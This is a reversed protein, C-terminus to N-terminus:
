CQLPTLFELNYRAGAFIKDDMRINQLFCNNWTNDGPANYILTGVQGLPGNIMNYLYAEISTRTENDFMIFWCECAIREFGGSKVVQGEKGDKGSNTETINMELNRISDVNHWFYFINETDDLQTTTFSLSRGRGLEYLDPTSLQNVVGCSDQDGLLFDITYRIYGDTIVPDFNTSVPYANSYSNGSLSLTGPSKALKENLQYQFYEVTTKTTDSPPVLYINATVNKSIQNTPKIIGGITRPFTKINPSSSGNWVGYGDHGLQLIEGDSNTFYPIM